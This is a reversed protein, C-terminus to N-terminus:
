SRLPLLYTDLFVSGNMSRVTHCETYFSQDLFTYSLPTKIIGVYGFLVVFVVPAFFACNLEDFSYLTFVASSLSSSLSLNISAFAPLTRCPSRLGQPLGSPPALYASHKLSCTFFKAAGYLYCWIGKRQGYLRVFCLRTEAM